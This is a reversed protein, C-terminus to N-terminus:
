DEYDRARVNPSSTQLSDIFSYHSNNILELLSEKPPIWTGLKMAFKYSLIFTLTQLVNFCLM